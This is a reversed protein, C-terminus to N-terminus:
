QSGSHLEGPLSESPPKDHHEFRLLAISTIKRTRTPSTLWLWSRRPTSPRTRRRPACGFVENRSILYQNRVSSLRGGIVILGESAALVQNKPHSYALNALAVLAQAHITEDEEETCLRILTEICGQTRGMRDV